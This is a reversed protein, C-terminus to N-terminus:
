AALKVGNRSLSVLAMETAREGARYVEWKASGATVPADETGEGKIGGSTFLVAVRVRNLPLVHRTAVHVTLGLGPPLVDIFRRLRVAVLRHGAMIERQLSVGPHYSVRAM